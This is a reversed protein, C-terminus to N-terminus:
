GSNLLEITGDTKLDHDHGDKGFASMGEAQGTEFLGESM